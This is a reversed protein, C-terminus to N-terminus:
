TKSHTPMNPREVAPSDGSRGSRPCAPASTERLRDGILKVLRAREDASPQPKDAPPMKRQDLALVARRWDRFGDVFTPDDSMNELSIKAKPEERGHCDFCYTQLLQPLSRGSGEDARCDPPLAALLSYLVLSTAIASSSCRLPHLHRRSGMTIRGRPAHLQFRQARDQLWDWSIILGSTPGCSDPQKTTPDNRNRPRAAPHQSIHCAAHLISAFGLPWRDRRGLVDSWSERGPPKSVGNRRRVMDGM